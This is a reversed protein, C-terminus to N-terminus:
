RGPPTGHKISSSASSPPGNGAPHPLARSDAYLGRQSSVATPCSPARSQPWPAALIVPGAPLPAPPAPQRRPSEGFLPSGGLGSAEPHLWPSHEASRAWSGSKRRELMAGIGWGVMMPREPTWALLGWSELRACGPFCRGRCFAGEEWPAKGDLHPGGAEHGPSPIVALDDVELGPPAAKWFPGPDYIMRTEVNLLQCRAPRSAGCSLRRVLNAEFKQQQQQGSIGMVHLSGNQLTRHLAM